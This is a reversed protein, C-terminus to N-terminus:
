SVREGKVSLKKTAFLNNEIIVELPTKYDLFKRPKKNLTDIAVNVYTQSYDGINAGKPYVM